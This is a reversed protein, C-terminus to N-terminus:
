SLSIRVDNRESESGNENWSIECMNVSHKRAVLGTSCRTGYQASQIFQASLLREWELPVGTAPLQDDTFIERRSLLSALEDAEPKSIDALQQKALAAKPWPTNLSANSLVHLGSPVVQVAPQPYNTLYLMQQPEAILLNFPPYQEAEDLIQRAFAQAPQESTLWRSVLHGRSRPSQPGVGPARVNTLAAIRGSEACGLWTGGEQLDKGAYVNSPQQWQALPATPRQYFEDRNASLTLWEPQQPQWNFVILCM